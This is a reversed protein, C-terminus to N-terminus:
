KQIFRDKSPRRTKHQSPLCTVFNYEIWNNQRSVRNEFLCDRSFKIQFGFRQCSIWHQISCTRIIHNAHVHLDYSILPQLSKWLKRQWSAYNWGFFFLFNFGFHYSDSIEIWLEDPWASISTVGLLTWFHTKTKTSYVNDELNLKQQSKIFIISM